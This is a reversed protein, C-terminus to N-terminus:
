YAIQAARELTSDSEGPMLDGILEQLEDVQAARALFAVGIALFGVVFSAIWLSRSATVTGPPPTPAKIPAPSANSLPPRPPPAPPESKAGGPPKPAFRDAIGAERADEAM